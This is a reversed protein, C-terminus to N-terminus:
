PRPMTSLRGETPSAGVVEDLLDAVQRAYDDLAHRSEVLRRGAAGIRGREAASAGLARQLGLALQEVDREECLWGSEGDVILEPLASSRPRWCRHTGHWRRSCRARCRSSTPPQLRLIDAIGFWPQIQGTVGILHIRSACGPSARGREALARSALGSDVASSSASSPSDPSSRLSRSSPSRWRCRPRARSSPASASSSTLTPRSVRRRARRPRAPFGGWASSRSRPRPRLPPDRMTDRTSCGATCRGPRMRRSSRWAPRRWPGSRRPRSRRRRPRGLARDARLERPDDLGSAPRTPCRRRRRDRHPWQDHQRPGARLRWPRGLRRAGRSPRPLACPRGDGFPQRRPRPRRASGARRAPRRRRRQRRDPEIRGQRRGERLLDLLYLSAGGHRLVNTFVLVRRGGTRKGPAALFRPPIVLAREAAPSETLVVPVPELECREGAISTAVVRLTAEGRLAPLADRGARLEFGAVAADPATSVGTVDARPLALRARGLPADGLWAEVRATPGSEFAVWGSLVVAGEFETGTPPYDLRGTPAQPAHRRQKRRLAM